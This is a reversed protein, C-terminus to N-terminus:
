CVMVLEEMMMWNMGMMVLASIVVLLTQVHKVVHLHYVNMLM